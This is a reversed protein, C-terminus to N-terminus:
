FPLEHDEFNGSEMIENMDDFYEDINGTDDEIDYEEPYEEPRRRAIQDEEQMEIALQRIRPDAHDLFTLFTRRRKRPIIGEWTICRELDRVAQRYTLEAAPLRACERCLHRGHGKGSFSENPRFSDCAWCYHGQRKRRSKKGSM